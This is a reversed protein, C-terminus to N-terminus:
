ATGHEPCHQEPGLQSIVSVDGEGSVVHLRRLAPPGASAELMWLNHEALCIRLGKLTVAAGCSKVWWCRIRCRWFALLHSRTHAAAFTVFPFQIWRGCESDDLLGVAPSSSPTFFPVPLWRFLHHKTLVWRHSPVKAHSPKTAYHVVPITGAQM